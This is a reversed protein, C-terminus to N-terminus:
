YFNAFGLISQVEALSEPTKWKLVADVKDKSMKVGERGIIYGLFEVEQTKWVCKEPSVALGNATLRKLLEKVREDHEKKRLATYSYTTWTHWYAWM